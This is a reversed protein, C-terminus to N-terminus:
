NRTLKWKIIKDDEILVMDKSYKVVPKTTKSPNELMIRISGCGDANSIPRGLSKVVYINNSFFVYSGVKLEQGIADLLTHQTESAM